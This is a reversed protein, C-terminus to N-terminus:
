KADSGTNLELLLYKNRTRTGREWPFVTEKVVPSGAFPLTQLDRERVILWRLHNERAFKGLTEPADFEPIRREPSLYFVLGPGWVRYMALGTLDDELQARVARAFPQEGRYPEVGPMAFIFLYVWALYAVVATSLAIKFPRFDRLAYVIGAIALLWLLAFVIPAPLPPYSRLIGPRATPPILIVVGFVAVAVLLFYGLNMLRRALTPLQDRAKTFLRAVLMAAAPLIPLLYYSRRSGSLTFFVFTAWFYVLAFRDGQGEAADPKAHARILMAIGAESHMRAHSIAFPVYYVVGAIAVAPVTKWNFLWRNREIMWAILRGPRSLRAWLEKWGQALSYYSGVVLLPLVFGLLGKTLSTLAMVLWAGIISWGGARERYRLFLIVAALEGTVTEVDASAHRSFFVFSYSTALIFGALMATRRDYFRQALIMALAVGILGSVASPLRAAAEDIGGTFHAAGLVLWYSLLPKDYYLKGNITPWFYNSSLRMERAIEAWRGESSWLARAGVRPFFLLAALAVIALAPVQFRRKGRSSPGATAAIEETQSLIAM